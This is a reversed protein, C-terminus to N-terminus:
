LAEETTITPDYFLDSPEPDDIVAPSANLLVVHPITIVQCAPSSYEKKSECDFHPSAIQKM